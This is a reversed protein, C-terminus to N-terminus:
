VQVKWEFSCQSHSSNIVRWESQNAKLGTFQSRRTEIRMKVSAILRGNKQSILYWDFAESSQRGYTRAYIVDASGTVSFKKSDPKILVLRRM